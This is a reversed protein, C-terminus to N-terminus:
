KQGTTQVMLNENKIESIKKNIKKTRDDISTKYDISDLVEATVDKM